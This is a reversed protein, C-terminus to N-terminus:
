SCHEGTMEPKDNSAQFESVYNDPFFSEVTSKANEAFPYTQYDWRSKMGHLKAVLKRFYQSTPPATNAVYAISDVNSVLLYDRDEPVRQHLESWHPIAEWHISRDALAESVLDVQLPVLHLHAHDVGCGM